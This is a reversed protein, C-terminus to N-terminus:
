GKLLSAKRLDFCHCQRDSSLVQKLSELNLKSPESAIVLPVRNNKNSKLITESLKQLENANIKMVFGSKM